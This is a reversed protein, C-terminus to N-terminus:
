KAASAAPRTFAFTISIGVPPNSADDQPVFKGSFEKDTLTIETLEVKKSKGEEEIVVRESLADRVGDAVGDFGIEDAGNAVPGAEAKEGPGLGRGARERDEVLAAIAAREFFGLPVPAYTQRLSKKSVASSRIAASSSGKAACTARATSSRRFRSWACCAPTTPM